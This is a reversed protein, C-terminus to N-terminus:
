GRFRRIVKLYIRSNQVIIQLNLGWTKIWWSSSTCNNQKRTSISFSAAHLRRRDGESTCYLVICYLVICYLVICYLVICYLVICYLVIYHLVTNVRICLFYSINACLSVWLLSNFHNLRVETEPHVRFQSCKFLIMSFPVFDTTKGVSSCM